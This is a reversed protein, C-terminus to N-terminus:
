RKEIGYEVYSSGRLDPVGSVKLANRHGAFGIKEDPYGSETETTVTTTVAVAIGSGARATAAPEYQPAPPSRASSSSRVNPIATLPVDTFGNSDSVGGPPGSPTPAGGGEGRTRERKCFLILARTLGILLNLFWVLLILASITTETKIGNAIKSTVRYVTATIQDSTSDGADALFSDSGDSSSISDSAGRSFTDNPLTPLDIYASDSVWTLGKSIGAIQLFILCNLVDLIPDYLITGAFTENLIGTTKNVFANLTDNVGTTSTHVWGFIKDNLDSNVNSIVSNTRNAWEMSTSELADVVKDAFAGVEASLEPVTKEVARLLIYQCLCSFLGAVALSLIFLASPSTAYAIVWRVLIQRRSNSFRSAAKIGAAATYPRSVIYVVDMPDDAEKRVLQSREKMHRWGRIEQWAVPLCALIAAIILVAIFVKRGTEAIDQVGDFFSDIGDNGKCFSLQRKEPVLLLSRDFTYTGLSENIKQNVEKFPTRIVNEVFETAEDFTPMSNNLKDLSEDISSPLRANELKDVFSSVNLTPVDVGISSAITNVVGLFKNLADQFTSITDGLDEGIDKVTSNLFDTADKLLGVGVEVSGHVALKILCLYTRYMTRIIYLVLEEVGTVTLMLMSKLGNVASEVGSATLENVGQSLYHPMSAMTSGQTEVTTCASLAQLKASAFDSQMGTVAILARALVLLLLITWRNMWIQSLRASLGMYPTIGDPNLPIIRGPGGHPDQAGYPPLLPFVSRGSRSFIM